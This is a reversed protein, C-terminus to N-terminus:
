VISFHHPLDITQRDDLDHPVGVVEALRHSQGGGNVQAVTIHDVDFALGFQGTVDVGLGHHDNMAVQGRLKTGFVGGGQRGIQYELLGYYSRIAYM